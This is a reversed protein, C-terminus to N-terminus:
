EPNLNVFFIAKFIFLAIAFWLQAAFFPRFLIVIAGVNDRTAGRWLKFSHISVFGIARLGFSKIFSSKAPVRECVV